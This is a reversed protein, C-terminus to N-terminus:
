LIQGIKILKKRTVWSTNSKFTHLCEYLLPPARLPPTGKISFKRYIFIKLIGKMLTTTTVTKYNIM